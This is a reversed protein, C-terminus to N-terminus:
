PKIGNLPSFRGLFLFYKFRVSLCYQKRRLSEIAANVLENGFFLVVEDSTCFASRAMISVVEGSHSCVMLLKSFRKENATPLVADINANLFRVLLFLIAHM